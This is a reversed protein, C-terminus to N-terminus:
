KTKNSFLVINFVFSLLLFDRKQKKNKINPLTKQKFDKYRTTQQSAGVKVITGVQQLEASQRNDLLNAREMQELPLSERNQDNLLRERMEHIYPCRQM